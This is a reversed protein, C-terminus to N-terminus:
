IITKEAEKGKVIQDLEMKRNFNAQKEKAVQGTMEQADEVKTEIKNSNAQKDEVTKSLKEKDM